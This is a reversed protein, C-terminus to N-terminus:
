ISMMVIINNLILALNDKYKELIRILLQSSDLFISLFAISKKVIKYLGKYYDTTISWWYSIMIQPVPRVYLM